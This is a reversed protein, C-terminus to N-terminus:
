FVERKCDRHENCEYNYYGRRGDPTVKTNGRQGQKWKYPSTTKWAEWAQWDVFTEIAEMSSSKQKPSSFPRVPPPPSSFDDSSSTNSSEDLLLVTNALPSFM